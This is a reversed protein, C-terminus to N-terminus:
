NKMLILNKGIKAIKYQTKSNHLHTNYQNKKFLHPIDKFYAKFIYAKSSLM